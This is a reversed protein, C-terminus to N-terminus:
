SFSPPERRVKSGWPTGGFLKLHVKGKLKLVEQNLELCAFGLSLEKIEGKHLADQGERTSGVKKCM